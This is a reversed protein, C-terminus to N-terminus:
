PRSKYRVAVAGWASYGKAFKDSSFLRNLLEVNFSNWKSYDNKASELATASTVQVQRLERGKQIRDDLKAKAEERTALLEPPAEPERPTARKAM